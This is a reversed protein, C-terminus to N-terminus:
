TMLPEKRSHGSGDPPETAPRYFYRHSQRIRRALGWLLSRVFLAASGAVLVMALPLFPMYIRSYAAYDGLTTVAVGYLTLLSLVSMMATQRSAFRRRAFRVGWYLALLPFVILARWLVASVDWWAALFGPFPQPGLVSADGPDFTSRLLLLSKVAYESPHTEIIAISYRGALAFHDRDLPAYGQGIVHWPDPDGSAMHGDIVRTLEAFQPPAEDQMHYQMIKGLLNINQVDSVGIFHNEVANVVVYLGMSGSVLLTALLLSPLVSRVPRHRAVALVLLAFLPFALYMWEPRTMELALLCLATLWLFAVRSTRIFLIATLALSTVLFLALGESLVSQVHTLLPASTSVLVSCGTAVWANRLILCGILYIEVAASVFLVGQLRSVWLVDHSHTVVFTAAILLPYGPLRRWDILVGHGLIAHTVRLYDATDPDGNPLPHMLYYAVTACGAILACALGCSLYRRRSRDSWILTIVTRMETWVAVLHAQPEAGADGAAGYAKKSPPM